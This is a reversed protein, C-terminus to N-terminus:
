HKRHARRIAKEMERISVPRRGPAHLLGRLGGADRNGPRLVVRDGPAEFVFELQDGAELGLRDRVAKPITIQGKSTLTASPM